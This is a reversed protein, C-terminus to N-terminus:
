PPGAGRAPGAAGGDPGLRPEQPGPRTAFAELARAPDGARALARGYRLLPRAAQPDAEAAERARREANALDGREIAASWPPWRCWRACRACPPCSTPRWWWPSWPSPPPWRSGCGAGAAGTRRGPDALRGGGRGPRVAAAHQPLPDRQPLHGRDHAPLVGDLAAIYGWAPTPRSALLYVAFLVVTPLVIADDLLILAAHRWSPM